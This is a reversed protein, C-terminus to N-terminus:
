GYCSFTSSDTTTSGFCNDFSWVNSKPKLLEERQKRRLIEWQSFEKEAKAKDEMYNYAAAKQHLLDARVKETKMLTKVYTKIVTAVSKTKPKLRLYKDLELYLEKSLVFVRSKTIGFDIEAAQKLFLRDLEELLRILADDSDYHDTSKTKQYLEDLYIDTETKTPM